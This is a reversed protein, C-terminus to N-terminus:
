LLETNKQEAVNKQGLTLYRCLSFSENKKEDVHVDM